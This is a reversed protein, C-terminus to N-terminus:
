VSSAAVSPGVCSRDAARVPRRMFPQEVYRWSLETLVASLPLVVVAMALVGPEGLLREAAVAVPFHWLYLGYARRGVERLPRWELWGVRSTGTVAFLAVVTLVSVLAPALWLVFLIPTAATAVVAAVAVLAVRSSGRHQVRGHLVVALLCGALLGLARTDSGYYVREWGQPWLAITLVFSAAIGVTLGTVLRRRGGGALVIFAIPWLVYFQEEIALSWMHRLASGDGAGAAMLWNSSYTLAGLVLPWGVFESGLLLGAVVVAAVCVLMAPLLRRARRAFFAPPDVRGSRAREELLLATILFGSLTFFVSVGVPGLSRIGGSLSLHSVVVLLVAVGRLGDLAPRHGLRWEGTMRVTQTM